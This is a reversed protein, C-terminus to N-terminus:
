TRSLYWGCMIIRKVGRQFNFQPFKMKQSAFTDESERSRVSERQKHYPIFSM